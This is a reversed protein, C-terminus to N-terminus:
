AAYGRRRALEELAGASLLGRLVGESVDAHRGLERMTGQRGVLEALAKKRKPTLRAPVIGTLRYETLQRPGKSRQRHRCSWGFFRFRSFRSLLGRDM